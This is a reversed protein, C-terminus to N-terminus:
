LLYHVFIQLYVLAAVIKISVLFCMRIHIHKPM